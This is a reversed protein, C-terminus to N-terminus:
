AEAANRPGIPLTAAVTTGIDSSDITLAGGSMLVRERMGTLGFGPGVEDVEFGHGDDTVEVVLRSGDVRVRVTVLRARAHKAVNTLA